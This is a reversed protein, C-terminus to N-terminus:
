PFAITNQWETDEYRNASARLRAADDRLRDVLATLADAHEARLEAYRRTLLEGPEGPQAPLDPLDVHRALDALATVADEIRDAAGRLASVSVTLDAM